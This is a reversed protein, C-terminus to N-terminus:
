NPEEVNEYLIPKASNGQWNVVSATIILSTNIMMYKIISLDIHLSTFQNNTLNKIIGESIKVNLLLLGPYLVILYALIYIFRSVQKRIDTHENLGSVSIFVVMVLLLLFILETLKFIAYPNAVEILFSEKFSNVKWRLRGETGTQFSNNGLEITKYTREKLQYVNVPISTYGGVETYCKLLFLSFYLIVMGLMYYPLRKIRKIKETSIM